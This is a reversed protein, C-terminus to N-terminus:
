KSKVVTKVSLLTRLKIEKAKAKKDNQMSITVDEGEALGILDLDLSFARKNKPLNLIILNGTQVLKITKSTSTVKTVITGDVLIQLSKDKSDKEPVVLLRLSGSSKDGLTVFQGSSKMQHGIKPVAPKEEATLYYRTSFSAKLDANESPTNIDKETNKPPASKDEQIITWCHNRGKESIAASVKINKFQDKTYGLKKLSPFVLNGTSGDNHIQISSAPINLSPCEKCKEDNFDVSLSACVQNQRLLKGNYLTVTSKSKGDDLVIATQDPFIKSEIDIPLEFSLHDSVYGPQLYALEAWLSEPYSYEKNVCFGQIYPQNRVIVQFKEDYGELKGNKNRDTCVVNDLKSQYGKYDNKLMLNWLNDVYMKSNKFEDSDQAVGYKGPFVEAVDIGFYSDLLAEIDDNERSPLKSVM